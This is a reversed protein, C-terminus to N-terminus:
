LLFGKRQMYDIPHKAHKSNNCFPTLLQINNDCNSGGLALPMIHDLQYGNKLSKGCCACKNKQLKFLKKVIDKSLKGGNNLKRVRKVSGQMRQIEPNRKRWEVSKKARIDANKRRYSEQSAEYKEKNKLRWERAYM